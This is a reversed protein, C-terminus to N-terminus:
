SKKKHVYLTHRCAKAKGSAGADRSWRGRTVM